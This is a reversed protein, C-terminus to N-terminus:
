AAVPEKTKKARAIEAYMRLSFTTLAAASAVLYLAILSDSGVNLGHLTAMVFAPYAAMHLVRWTKQGIKNKFVTSVYVLLLAYVALTGLAIEFPQFSSTGSVLVASLPQRYKGDVVLFMGHVLSVTLAFGSLLGHWGYQVARNLWTPAFQSKLLAGLATTIGLVSYALTGSVRLMSWAIPAGSLGLLSIVWAVLVALVIVATLFENFSNLNNQKEGIVYKSVM